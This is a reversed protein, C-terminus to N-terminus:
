RTRYRIFNPSGRGKFPKSVELTRGKIELSKRFAKSPEVGSFAVISDYKSAGLASLPM